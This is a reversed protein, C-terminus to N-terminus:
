GIDVGSLIVLSSSIMSNPVSSSCTSLASAAVGAVGVSACTVIFVHSTIATHRRHDDRNGASLQQCDSEWIRERCNPVAKQGMGEMVAAPPEIDVFSPSGM